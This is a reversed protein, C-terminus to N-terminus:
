RVDDQQVPRDIEIQRTIQAQGAGDARHAVACVQIAAEAGGIDAQDRSPRHVAVIQHAAFVAACGQELHRRNALAPQGDGAAQDVHAAGTEADVARDAERATALKFIIVGSVTLDVHDAAAVDTHGAAVDIRHAVDRQGGRLDIRHRPHVGADIRAAVAVAERAGGIDVAGQHWAARDAEM